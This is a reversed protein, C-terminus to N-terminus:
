PIVQPDEPIGLKAGLLMKPSRLINDRLFQEYQPLKRAQDEPLVIAHEWDLVQDIAMVGPKLPLVSQFFVSYELPSWPWPHSNLSSDNIGVLTVPAPPTNRPCNMALFDAFANDWSALPEIQAQNLLALGALLALLMFQAGTRFM